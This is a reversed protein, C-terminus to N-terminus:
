LYAMYHVISMNGKKYSEKKEMSNIVALKRIQKMKQTHIVLQDESIERLTFITKINESM